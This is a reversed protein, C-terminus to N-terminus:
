NKIFENILEKKRTFICDHYIGGFDNALDFQKLFQKLNTFYLLKIGMKNCMGNKLIDRGVCSSFNDEIQEKSMSKTFKVPKFHQIGQCEIAVKHEPLYFDLSMRGFGERYQTIYKIGLKDLYMRWEREMRLDHCKSCGFGTLHVYPTQWFEGHEPCIICVKTDCNVYEVKSYDYKDGHIARAKEIFEETTYPHNRYKNCKWCEQGRLHNNPIMWFENGCNKCIICVKTQNNVYEVKSYDYKDGHIARAKEIFEDKRFRLKNGITVDGCKDCGCGKLHVYPLQWFEGHEPCIICLKTHSNVYRVKSYDYKDGHVEIAKEIFEDTTIRGRSEWIKNLGCKPCGVGQLHSSPVQWFEGHEPCIICVKTHNNVYNVKSYDYKNGHLERAKEIFEETTLKRMNNSM